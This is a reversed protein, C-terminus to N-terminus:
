RIIPIQPRVPDSGVTFVDTPCYYLGDRKELNLKISYLGSDSSFRISGPADGRHGEQTWHVLTDSAAVIAEPSIITETANKCSYCLQYYVSGDSLTLPILGKKTCCDDLSVSNFSTAVSIPLPPINEVDVLLSLIGTICINAGGDMLSPNDLADM